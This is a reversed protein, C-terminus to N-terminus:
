IQNLVLLLRNDLAQHKIDSPFRAIFQSSSKLFKLSIVRTTNNSPSNASIKSFNPSQTSM